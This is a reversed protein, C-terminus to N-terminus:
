SGQFDSTWVSFDETNPRRIILNPLLEIEEEQIGLNVVPMTATYTLPADKTLDKLYVSCYYELDETKFSNQISKHVLFWIFDHYYGRKLM